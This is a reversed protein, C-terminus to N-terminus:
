VLSQELRALSHTHQSDFVTNIDSIGKCGAIRVRTTGTTSTQLGLADAHPFRSVELNIRSCCPASIKSHSYLSRTLIRTFKHQLHTKSFPPFHLSRFPLATLLHHGSPVSPIQIVMFLWIESPNEPVKHRTHLNQDAPSPLIVGPNLDRWKLAYQNAFSLFDM